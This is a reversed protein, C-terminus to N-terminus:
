RKKEIAGLDPIQGSRNNGKLDKQVQSPLFSVDMGKDIAPSLSDLEFNYKCENIFEPNKNLINNNIALQGDTTKILCHDVTVNFAGTGSSELLIENQNYGWVISNVLTLSLDNQHGNYDTNFFALAIDQSSCVCQSHSFTCHYFEYKGGLDGVALYQCSNDVITNYATIHATYGLIGVASTNEIVVNELVLNPNGNVPLSDVRVGITANRISANRIYNDKSERLFYLGFWQGPINRYYDDLRVHRFEVPEEYSGNVKLTGWVLIASGNDSYIKVGPMITLTTNRDIGIHNSIVYPLDPYWITDHTILYSHFFHANQGWALLKVHQVNGNTVFMISDKVIFPLTSTDPNITVDVFVYSSDEPLMEYDHIVVSPDGDVNIRFPSAKGGALRIESIRIKQKYPNYIMFRKTASGRTVFVTDFLVTDTSFKLKATPDTIFGEDRCSYLGMWCIICFLAFHIITNRM